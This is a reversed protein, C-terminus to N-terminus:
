LGFYKIAKRLKVKFFVCNVTSALYSIYVM